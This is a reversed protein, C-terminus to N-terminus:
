ISDLLQRARLAVPYDVFEGDVTISAAGDRSAADFAEAIRRARDLQEPTPCFAAAAIELQAPHICMKGGYGMASAAVCERGFGHPDRVQPYASDLPKSLGLTRSWLPLQVKANLLAPNDSTWEVGLDLALDGAGFALQRVREPLDHLRSLGTVGAATEIIPVIILRGPVSGAQKEAKALQEDAERVEDSTTVMPLVIGDVGPAAAAQLDEAAWRTALANVRVLLAVGPGRPLAALDAINSRASIKADEHVADELDVFVAETALTIAKAVRAPRDGPTFLATRLGRRSRATM